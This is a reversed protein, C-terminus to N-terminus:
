WFDFVSFDIPSETTPNLKGADNISITRADFWNDWSSGKMMNRLSIALLAVLFAMILKFLTEDICYDYKFKDNEYLINPKSSIVYWTLFGAFSGIIAKEM